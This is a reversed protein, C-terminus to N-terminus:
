KNFSENRLRRQKPLTLQNTLILLSSFKKLGFKYLSTNITRIELTRPEYGKLTIFNKHVCWAGRTEAGQRQVRNRGTGHFRAQHSIHIACVKGAV